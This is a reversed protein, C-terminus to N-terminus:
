QVRMSTAGILTYSGDPNQYWGEFAPYVNLGADKLPEMVLEQQAFAPGGALCTLVVAAAVVGAVGAPAVAGIVPTVCSTFITPSSL